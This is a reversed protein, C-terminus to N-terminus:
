VATKCGSESVEGGRRGSAPNRGESGEWEGEGRGMRLLDLLRVAGVEGGGLDDDGATAAELRTVVEGHELGKRVLEVGGDAGRASRDVRAHAGVINLRAFQLQM